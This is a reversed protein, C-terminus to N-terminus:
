RIEALANVALTDGLESTFVPRSTLYQDIIPRGSEDVATTSFDL